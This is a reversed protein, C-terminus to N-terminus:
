ATENFKGWDDMDKYLSKRLLLIFKNITNNSFKFTSKFKIKLEEHLKNSYDKNCSLCKHKRLNDKVTEYELFCVCDKCKTKHIGATRNDVLNSLSSTM